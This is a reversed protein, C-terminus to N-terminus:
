FFFFIFSFCWVCVCVLCVLGHFQTVDMGQKQTALTSWVLVCVFIICLENMRGKERERIRRHWLKKTSFFLFPKENQRGGRKGAVKAENM